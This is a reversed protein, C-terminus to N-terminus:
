LAGSIQMSFCWLSETFGANSVLCSPSYLGKMHGKLFISEPAGLSASFCSSDWDKWPCLMEVPKTVIKVLSILAPLVDVKGKESVSLIFSWNSKAQGTQVLQVTYGKSKVIDAVTLFFCNQRGQFILLRLAANSEIM